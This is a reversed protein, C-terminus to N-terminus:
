KVANLEMFFTSGKGLGESEVYVRGGHAETIEKTLYLGLGSGTTNMRAGDGRAFKQFLTAKIEPTMGMGTDSVSFVVKDNIKEVKVDVRGEKTYKISNDIFNLVVQRIKGEDGNVICDKVGESLFGLKLGKHEAVISLDKCMSSAVSALDFPAMEYKMGGQEIKSVNLLDEVVKALNQSSEFIRTTADKAEAGIEGYDGEVLMSAYGKIATLPSRLQHSALSVFESKLKDLGKLKENAEFLQDTLIQLSEKQKIERKVSKVLVYGLVIVFLLTFIVVIRVNEISRIFLMASVLFGLAFVLAETGLLKINFTKFRVIMYGIFGAFIPMSFLGVQAVTWNDTISGIINGSAFSFLFLIVGLAIFFIQKRDNSITTKYKKVVFFMIWLTYLIEIFYVYYTAIFGEIPERYCNTLNFGILSLKTPLLIIIPLFLSFIGIKKKFSIDKKEIFVDIFYVSLAYILPEVVLIASWFFMILYSKENAWLVLDLFVWVSFTIMMLFLLRNVLSKKDIIFVYFGVILALLLAVFHSYYILAGFVNDSLILFRSADWQCLEIFQQISTEM